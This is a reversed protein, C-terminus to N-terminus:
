VVIRTSKDYDFEKKPLDVEDPIAVCYDRTELFELGIFFKILSSTAKFFDMDSLEETVEAQKSFHTRIDKELEKLQKKGEDISLPMISPAVVCVDDLRNSALEMTYKTLWESWNYLYFFTVNDRIWGPSINLPDQSIVRVPIINNTRVKLCLVMTNIEEGSLKYPYINLILEPNVLRGDKSFEIIFDAVISGLRFLLATPLSNKLTQVNRKRYRERFENLNMGPFEDRERFYYGELLLSDAKEADMEMLTAFRTDFLCDLDILVGHKKPQANAKM